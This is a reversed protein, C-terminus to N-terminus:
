KTEADKELQPLIGEVDPQTPVVEIMYPKDLLTVHVDDFARTDPSWVGFATAVVAKANKNVLLWSVPVGISDTKDSPYNVIGTTRYFWQLHDVNDFGLESAWNVALMTSNKAPLLPTLERVLQSTLDGQRQKALDKREAETLVKEDVPNAPDKVKEPIGELSPNDGTLKLLSNQGKAVLRAADMSAVSWRKATIKDPFGAIVSTISSDQTKMKAISHRLEAVKAESGAKAANAMGSTFLGGVLLLIGAVQLTVLSIKASKSLPEYNDEEIEADPEIDKIYSSMTLSPPAARKKGSM